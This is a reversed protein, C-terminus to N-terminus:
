KNEDKSDAIERNDNTDIATVIGDANEKTDIEGTTESTDNQNNARAFNEESQASLKEDNEFSAKEEDTLDKYETTTPKVKAQLGKDDDDVSTRLLGRRIYSKEKVANNIFVGLGTITPLYFTLLRWLLMGWFRFGGTLVSVILYFFGESVGSSGPTPIFASAASTYAM